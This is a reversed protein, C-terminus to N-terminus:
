LHMTSGGLIFVVACAAEKASDPVINTPDHVADHSPSDLPVVHLVHRDLLYELGERNLSHGPLRDRIHISILHLNDLIGKIIYLRVEGIILYVIIDVKVHLLLFLNLIDSRHFIDGMYKDVVTVRAGKGTTSFVPLIVFLDKGIVNHTPEVLGFARVLDINFPHTLTILEFSPAGLIGKPVKNGFLNQTIM